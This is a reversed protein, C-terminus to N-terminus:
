DPSLVLSQHPPSVQQLQAERQGQRKWLPQGLRVWMRGERTVVSLRGPVKRRVLHLSPSCKSTAGKWAATGGGGVSQPRLCGSQPINIKEDMEWDPVHDTLHFVIVYLCSSRVSHKRDKM